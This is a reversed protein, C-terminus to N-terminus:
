VRLTTRCHIHSIPLHCISNKEGKSELQKGTGAELVVQGAAKRDVAKRVEIKFLVKHKPVV